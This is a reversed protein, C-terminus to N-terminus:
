LPALGRRGLRGHRQHVQRTVYEHCRHRRRRGPPRPPPEQSRRTDALTAYAVTLSSRLVVTAVAVAAQKALMM